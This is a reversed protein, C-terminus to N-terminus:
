SNARKPRGRAARTRRRTPDAEARALRASAERFLGRLWRGVSDNETRPHWVSRVVFPKLAVPCEVVELGLM